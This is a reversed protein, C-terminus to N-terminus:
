KKGQENETEYLKLGKQRSRHVALGYDGLAKRIHYLHVDISRNLSPTLPEMWVEEAISDFTVLQDKNDLLKELLNAAKGTLVVNDNILCMNSVESKDIFKIKTEM